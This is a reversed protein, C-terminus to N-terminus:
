RKTKKDKKVKRGVLLNVNSNSNKGYSDFCGLNVQWSVM